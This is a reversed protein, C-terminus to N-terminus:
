RVRGLHLHLRELVGFVHQRWPRLQERKSQHVTCVDYRQLVGRLQECQVVASADPVPRESVAYRGRVNRDDRRLQVLRQQLSRRHQLVPSDVVLPLHPRAAHQLGSRQLPRRRLGRQCLGSRVGYRGTRVLLLGDRRRVRGVLQVNSARQGRLECGSAFRLDQRRVPQGRLCGSRLRWQLHCRGLCLRLQRRQLCRTLRLGSAGFREHVDARSALQVGRWRVARECVRRSRVRTQVARLQERIPVVYRHM